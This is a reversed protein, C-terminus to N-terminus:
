APKVSTGDEKVVWRLRGPPCGEEVESLSHGDELIPLPQFPELVVWSRRQDDIKKVRVVGKSLAELGHTEVNERFCPDPFHPDEDKRVM